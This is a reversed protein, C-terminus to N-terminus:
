LSSENTGYDSDKRGVVGVSIGTYAMIRWYKMKNRLARRLRYLGPIRFPVLPLHIGVKWLVERMIRYALCPYMWEAYFDVPELGYKHLKKELQRLSFEKEWGAFWKNLAILSHKIITYIHWRQPVDVIVYGGPRLVRANEALIGEEERFHEILGQHFVLDFSNDEFPLHFADGGVPITKSKSHKNLESIIELSAPAYDLTYVEAGLAALDFSDRATGAGVELVRKGTLDSDWIRRVAELIRGSNDYFEKVPKKKWFTEWHQKDSTRKM